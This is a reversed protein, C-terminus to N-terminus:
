CRYYRGSFFQYQGGLECGVGGVIQKEGRLGDLGCGVQVAGVVQYVEVDYFQYSSYQVEFVFEILQRGFVVYYYYFYFGFVFFSFLLICVVCRAWFFFSFFSFKRIQRIFVKGLFVGLVVFYEFFIQDWIVEFFLDQGLFVRGLFFRFNEFFFYCDGQGKREWFTFRVRRFSMSFTFSRRGEKGDDERVSIFIRTGFYVM